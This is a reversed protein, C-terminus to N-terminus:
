SSAFTREHLIYDKEYINELLTTIEPTIIDNLAVEISTSENFRPVDELKKKVGAKWMVREFHEKYNDVSGIFDLHVDRTAHTIIKKQTQWHYDKRVKTKGGLNDRVFHLFKVFNERHNTLDINKDDSFKLGYDSILIQRVSSFSYADVNHIKDVFCSYVRKGPERIFTFTCHKGILTRLLKERDIDARVLSEKNQHISLPDELYKGNDLFYMINRTTTCASKPINLYVLGNTRCAFFSGLQITETKKM